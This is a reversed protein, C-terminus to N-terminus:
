RKRPKDSSCSSHSPLLSLPSFAACSTPRCSSQRWNSRRRKAQCTVRSAKLERAPLLFCSIMKFIPFSIPPVGARSSGSSLPLLLPPSCGPCASGRPPRLHSPPRSIKRWLLWSSQFSEIKCVANLKAVLVNQETFCASATSLQTFSFTSLHAQNLPLCYLLNKNHKLTM